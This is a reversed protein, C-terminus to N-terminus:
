GAWVVWRRREGLSRTFGWCAAASSKLRQPYVTLGPFLFTYALSLASTANLVPVWLPDSVLFLVLFLRSMEFDRDWTRFFFFFFLFYFGYLKMALFFFFCGLIAEGLLNGCSPGQM